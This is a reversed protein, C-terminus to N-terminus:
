NNAVTQRIIYTCSSTNQAVRCSRSVFVPWLPSDFTGIRDTGLYRVLLYCFPFDLATLGAYVGVASWGYERSLKKMRGSITTPEAEAAGANPPAPKVDLRARSNHFSRISARLRQLLTTPSPRPHSSFTFSTPPKRATTSRQTFARQTITRLTRLHPITQVRSGARSPAFFRM